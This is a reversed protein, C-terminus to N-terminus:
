YRITFDQKALDPCLFVIGFQFVDVSQRVRPHAKITEWAATMGKSWYIDDILIVAKESAFKLVENFYRITAQEEHHGDLYAFEVYGINQLANTLTKKFHGARVEYNGVGLLSLNKSAIASLQPCGELTLVNANPYGVSMYGASVGTASGLELINSPQLVRTLHFLLHRYKRSKTVHKTYKGVQKTTHTGFKSGAGLDTHDFEEKSNAIKSFWADVERLEQCKVPHYFAEELLRYLFPSHVSHENKAHWLYSVYALAQHTNM